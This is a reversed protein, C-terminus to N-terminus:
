DGQREHDLTKEETVSRAHPFSDAEGVIHLAVDTAAQFGGSGTLTKTAVVNALQRRGKEPQRRCGQALPGM